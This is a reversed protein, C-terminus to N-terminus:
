PALDGVLIQTRAARDAHQSGNIACAPGGVHDRKFFGQNGRHAFTQEVLYQALHRRGGVPHALRQNAHHAFQGVPYEFDTRQPHLVAYVGLQQAQRAFGPHSVVPGPEIGHGGMDVDGGADAGVAFLDRAFNRGHDLFAQDLAVTM